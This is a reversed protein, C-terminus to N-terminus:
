REERVAHLGLAVVACPLVTLGALLAVPHASGTALLVGCAAVVVAFRVMAGLLWGARAGGADGGVMSVRAALWRFNVIAVAGGALVGWGAPAGALWGALAALPTTAACTALTVRATLETPTM